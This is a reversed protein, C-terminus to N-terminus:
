GLLFKNNNLSQRNLPIEQSYELIYFGPNLKKGMQVTEGASANNKTEPLHGNVDFLRLNIKEKEM